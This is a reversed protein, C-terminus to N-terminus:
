WLEFCDFLGCSGFIKEVHVCNYMHEPSSGTQFFFKQLKVNSAFIKKRSLGCKPLYFRYSLSLM